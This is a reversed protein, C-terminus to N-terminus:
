RLYKWSLSRSVIPHAAEMRAHRLQPRSQVRVLKIKNGAGDYAVCVQWPLREVAISRSSSWSHPLYSYSSFVFTNGTALYSGIHELHRINAHADNSTPNKKGMAVVGAM